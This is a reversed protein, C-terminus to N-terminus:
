TIIDVHELTANEVNEIRTEMLDLRANLADFLANILLRIM